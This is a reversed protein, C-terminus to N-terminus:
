TIRDEFFRAPNVNQRGDARHFIQGSWSVKIVRYKSDDGLNHDQLTQQETKIKEPYAMPFTM